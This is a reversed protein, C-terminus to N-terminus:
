RRKGDIGRLEFLQSRLAIRDEDCHLDYEEELTVVGLHATSLHGVRVATEKLRHTLLM